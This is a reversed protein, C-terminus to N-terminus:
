RSPGGHILVDLAKIAQSALQLLLFLAGLPAAGLFLVLPPAWETPRRSGTQWADISANGVQWVVLCLFFAILPASILELVAQGRPSLRDTLLDVRIHAGRKMAFAGGLLGLWAYLMLASDYAWITPAAFLYRAAVEFAIVLVMAPMLWSLARGTRESLQDIAAAVTRLREM